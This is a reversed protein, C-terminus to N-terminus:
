QNTQHSVFLLEIICHLIINIYTLTLHAIDHLIFRIITKKEKQKEELNQM